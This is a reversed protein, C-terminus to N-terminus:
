TTWTAPTSSSPASSRSPSTPARGSCRRSVRPRTARGTRARSSTTARMAGPPAAASTATTSPTATSSSCRTTASRRWPPCRSSSRSPRACTRRIGPSYPTDRREPSTPIATHRRTFVRHENYITNFPAKFQGSNKDIVYENMVGYNMVIPLGYIFGEEAIAKIEAIGPAPIGAAADKKEAEAMPDDKKGCGAIMLSQPSVPQRIGNLHWRPCATYEGQQQISVRASPTVASERKRENKGQRTLLFVLIRFRDYHPPVPCVYRRGGAPIVYVWRGSLETRVGVRAGAAFREKLLVM